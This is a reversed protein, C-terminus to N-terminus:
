EGGWGACSDPWPSSRQLDMAGGRGNGVAVVWSPLLVRLDAAREEAFRPDRPRRPSPSSAPTATQLSCSGRPKLKTAALPLCGRPPPRKAPLIGGPLPPLDRGRAHHRRHLLHVDGDYRVLQRRQLRRV